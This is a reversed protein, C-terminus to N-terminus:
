VDFVDDSEDFTKSTFADPLPCFDPIEPNKLYTQFDAIFRYVGMISCYFGEQQLKCFPCEACNKITIAKM